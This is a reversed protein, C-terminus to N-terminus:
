GRQKLNDKQLIDLIIPIFIITLPVLFLRTERAWVLWLHALFWCPVILWFLLQLRTDAYRNKVFVFLPLVSLTAFLKLVTIPDTLNFVLLKFGPEIGIYAPPRYGFYSRIGIFVMLYIVLCGALIFISRKRLAPQKIQLIDILLVFPLLLSTERNLTALLTLPLFWLRNRNSFIINVAWIFFLVELYTGFAYDTNYTAASFSFSLIILMLFRLHKNTTFYKYLQDLNWYVIFYLVIRFIKFSLNYTNSFAMGKYVIFNETVPLVKYVTYTLVQHFGEALLPALVRYQWPNFFFSNKRFFEIHHHLQVYSNSYIFGYYTPYISLLLLLYVYSLKNKWGNM